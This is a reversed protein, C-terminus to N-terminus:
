FMLLFATSSPKDRNVPLMYSGKFPGDTNMFRDFKLFCRTSSQQKPRSDAMMNTAQLSIVEVSADGVGVALVSLAAVAVAATCASMLSIVKMPVGVALITEPVVKSTSPFILFPSLLCCSMKIWADSSSADPLGM